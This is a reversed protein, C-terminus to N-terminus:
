NVSVSASRLANLREGPIGILNFGLFSVATRHERQDEQLDFAVETSATPAVAKFKITAIVGSTPVRVKSSFGMWYHIEGTANYAVNKRHFDFPLDDHYEGDFINVDRTIWNDDDYDVVQLVKPDFRVQLKVTDIDTRRPNSYVIDVLFTDGVSPNTTRPRLSLTVGGAATGQSISNALTM